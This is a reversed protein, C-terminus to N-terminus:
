EPDGMYFRPRELAPNTAGVPSAAGKPEASPEGVHRPGPGRPLAAARRLSRPPPLVCAIKETALLPGM